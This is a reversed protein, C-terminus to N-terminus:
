AHGARGTDDWRSATQRLWVAAGATMAAVVVGILFFAGVDFNRYDFLGKILGATVVVIASLAVMALPVIDQRRSRYFWLTAIFWPLYVAPVYRMLRWGANHELFWWSVGLGTAAGAALLAIFRPAYAVRMWDIRPWLCEWLILALANFLL